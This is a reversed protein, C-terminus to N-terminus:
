GSIMRVVLANFLEVQQEHTIDDLKSMFAAFISDTIRKRHSTLADYMQSELNFASNEIDNM